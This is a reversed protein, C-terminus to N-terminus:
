MKFSKGIILWFNSTHSSCERHSSVFHILNHCINNPNLFNNLFINYNIKLFIIIISFYFKARCLGGVRLVKRYYDDAWLLKEVLEDVM